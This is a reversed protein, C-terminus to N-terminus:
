EIIMHAYMTQAMEGVQRGGRKEGGGGLTKKFNLAAKKKIKLKKKNQQTPTCQLM